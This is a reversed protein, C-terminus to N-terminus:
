TPLDRPCETGGGHEKNRSAIKACLREEWPGEWFVPDEDEEPSECTETDAAVPWKSGGSRTMECCNPKGLGVLRFTYSTGHDEMHRETLSPHVTPVKDVCTSYAATLGFGVPVSLLGCTLHPLSLPPQAGPWVSASPM